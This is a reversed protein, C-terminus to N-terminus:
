VLTFEVGEEADADSWGAQALKRSSLNLRQGEMGGEVNLGEESGLDVGDDEEQESDLVWLQEREVCLERRRPARQEEEEEEFWGGQSTLPRARTESESELQMMIDHMSPSWMTQARCSQGEVAVGAIKQSLSGSECSASGSSPGPWDASAAPSTSASRTLSANLGKLNLISEVEAAEIKGIGSAVQFQATRPWSSTSASAIHLHHLSPIQAAVHLSSSPSSPATTGQAHMPVDLGAQSTVQHDHHKAANMSASSTTPATQPATRNFTCSGRMWASIHAGIEGRLAGRESDGLRQMRKSEGDVSARLKDLSRGAASDSAGRDEDQELKSASYGCESSTPTATSESGPESDNSASATGTLCAHEKIDCLSSAGARQERRETRREKEEKEAKEEEREIETREQHEELGAKEVRMRRMESEGRKREADAEVEDEGKEKEWGEQKREM